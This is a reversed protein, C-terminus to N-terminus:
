LWSLIIILLIVSFILLMIGCGFNFFGKSANNLKNQFEQEKQQKSVTRRVPNIQLSDHFSGEKIEDEDYFSEHFGHKKPEKKQYGCNPCSVAYESIQMECEPCTILAM